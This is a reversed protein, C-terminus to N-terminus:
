PRSADLVSCLTRQFLSTPFSVIVTLLKVILVASISNSFHLMSIIQITDSDLYKKDPSNRFFGAHTVVKKLGEPFVCEDELSPYAYKKTM